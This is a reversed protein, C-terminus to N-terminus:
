GDGHHVLVLDVREDQTQVLDLSHLEPLELELGPEDRGDVHVQAHDDGVGIHKGADRRAHPVHQLAVARLEIVHAADGVGREGDGRAHRQVVVARHQHAALLHLVVAGLLGDLAREDGALGAQHHLIEDGRASGHHLRDARQVVHPQLHLVDDHEDIALLAAFRSQLAVVQAEVRHQRQGAHQHGELLVALHGCVEHVGDLREDGRVLGAGVRATVLHARRLRGLAGGVRASGLQSGVLARFIQPAQHVLLLGVQTKGRVHLARSLQERERVREAGLDADELRM